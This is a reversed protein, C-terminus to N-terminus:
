GPSKKDLAKERIALLRSAVWGTTGNARIQTWDKQTKLVKVRTGMSLVAVRKAAISPEARVNAADVNVIHFTEFNGDLPSDPVIEIEDIAETQIAPDSKGFKINLKFVVILFFILVMVAIRLSTQSATLVSKEPDLELIEPTDCALCVLLDDPVPKKCASCITGIGKRRIFNEHATSTLPM